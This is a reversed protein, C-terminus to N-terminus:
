CALAEALVLGFVEARAAHLYVDAAQYYQALQAASPQYPLHRILVRGRRKDPADAGICYLHIFPASAEGGLRSMAAEMTAYDKLPNNRGQNAVFVVVAADLPIGLLRRVEQQSVPRFVNLDVGPLIIRHDVIAPALMSQLVRQLLWHSPAAVHLRSRAY